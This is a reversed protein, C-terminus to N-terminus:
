IYHVIYAHVAWRQTGTSHNYAPKQLSINHVIDNCERTFHLVTSAFCSCEECPFFVQFILM